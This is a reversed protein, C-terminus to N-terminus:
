VILSIYEYRSGDAQYTIFSSAQYIIFTRDQTPNERNNHEFLLSKPAAITSRTSDLVKRRRQQRFHCHYTGYIPWADSRDGAGNKIIISSSLSLHRGFIYQEMKM